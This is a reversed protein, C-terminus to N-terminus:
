GRRRMATMFPNAALEEGLTTTQMHGPLVPATDPYNDVLKQISSLLTDYDGGQLDTRGVSRFFILDGCFLYGDIDFTLDGPSHGPTEWVRVELEGVKLRDGEHLLVKAEGKSAGLFEPFVAYKDPDRLMPAVAPACAIVAQTLAALEAAGGLHDPHGHTLLIHTIDLGEDKAISAIREPEGGPDIVCATKNDDAVLYCNTQIMGVMARWVNM